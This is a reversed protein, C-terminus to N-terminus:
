GRWAYIHNATESGRYGFDLWRVSYGRSVLWGELEEKRSPDHLEIVWSRIRNLIPEAGKLVRWEEGEADVKVLDIEVTPFFSALTVTQAVGRSGHYTVELLQGKTDSVAKEICKANKLKELNQKLEEFIPPIPEFAYIKDFNRHLLMPYYGYNAGVDVFIHGEIKKLFSSVPKEHLGFLVATKRKIKGIIKM